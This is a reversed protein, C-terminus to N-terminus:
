PRVRSLVRAAGGSQVQLQRGYRLATSPSCWRLTLAIGSGDEGAAFLDQTTQVGLSDTSLAVVAADFEGPALEVLGVAAAALAVRRHIGTM